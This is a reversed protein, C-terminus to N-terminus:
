RWVGPRQRVNTPTAGVPQGERRAGPDSSGLRRHERRAGLELGITAAPWSTAIRFAAPVQTNVDHAFHAFGCSRLPPSGSRATTERDEAHAGEESGM